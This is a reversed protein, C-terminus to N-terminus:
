ATTISKIATIPAMFTPQSDVIASFEIGLSNALRKKCVGHPLQRVARGTRELRSGVLGLTEMQPTM